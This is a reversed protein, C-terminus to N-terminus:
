DDIESKLVEGTVPHVYAEIREGKANLAKVEYVGDDDEVKRVDYGEASLKASIQEISMWQDRPANVRIEDSSALVVGATGTLGTVVALAILTKKM